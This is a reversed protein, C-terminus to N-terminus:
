ISETMFVVGKGDQLDDKWEGNYTAGNQHRYTGKGNAKDNAWEGEYIDGDV